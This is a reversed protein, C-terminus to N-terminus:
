PEPELTRIHREHALQPPQPQARAALRTPGAAMARRDLQDMLRALLDLKVPELEGLRRPALAGVHEDARQAERAATARHDALPHGERVQDVRDIADQAAQAAGAAGPPGIAHRRDDTGAAIPDGGLERLDRPVVADLHPDARRASRLALADDLRRDLVDRARPPAARRDRTQALRLGIQVAPRERDGIPAFAAAGRDGLKGGM